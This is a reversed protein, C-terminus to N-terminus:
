GSQHERCRIWCCQPLTAWDSQLTAFSYMCSRAANHRAYALARVGFSLGDYGSMKEVDSKELGISTKPDNLDKGTLFADALVIDKATVEDKAKDGLLDVLFAKWLGGGTSTSGATAGGPTGPAAGAAVVEGNVKPAMTSVSQGLM